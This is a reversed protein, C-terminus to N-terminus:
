LQASPVTGLRCDDSLYRTWKQNGVRDIVILIDIDFGTTTEGRADSGFCYVGKLRNRYVHELRCEKARLLQRVKDTM